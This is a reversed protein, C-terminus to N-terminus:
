FWEWTREDHRFWRPPSVASPYLSVFWIWEDRGFRGVGGEARKNGGDDGEKSRIRVGWARVGYWMSRRRRRGGLKFEWNDSIFIDSCPRYIGANPAEKSGRGEEEVEEEEVEAEPELPTILLSTTQPFSNRKVARISIESKFERIRFLGNVDFLLFVRRFLARSARSANSLDVV